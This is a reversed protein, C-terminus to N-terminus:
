GERVGSPHPTIWIILYFCPFVCMMKPPNVWIRKSINSGKVSKKIHIKSGVDSNKQKQKCCGFFIAGNLYVVCRAGFIFTDFFSNKQGLTLTHWRWIGKNLWWRQCTCRPPPCDYQDCSPVDLPLLCHHRSAVLSLCLGTSLSSTPQSLYAAIRIHSIPQKFNFPFSFLLGLHSWNNLPNTAYSDGIFPYTPPDIKFIFNGVKGVLWSNTSCHELSPLTPIDIANM